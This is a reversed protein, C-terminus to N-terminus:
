NLSAMAPTPTTLRNSLGSAMLGATLAIDAGPTTMLPSENFMRMWDDDSINDIEDIIQMWLKKFRSQSLRTACLKIEIKEIGNCIVCASLTKENVFFLIDGSDVNLRRLAEFTGVAARLTPHIKSYNM